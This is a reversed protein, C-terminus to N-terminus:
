EHHKHILKAIAESAEKRCCSFSPFDNLDIIYFDGNPTVIADGGFIEVGISDAAEFAVRKFLKSDFLYRKATGNIIELGFKSNEPTPYYWHFFDEKVGYFKILDGKIHCTCVVDTIGRKRLIKLIKNAESPSTAYCVDQPSNSWGEGKKLWLPYGRSPANEETSLHFYQPQPINNCSMIEMCEKRSCNKVGAPRNTVNIGMEQVQQLKALITNNRSMHFIADYSESDTIDNEDAIKVKNGLIELQQAVALLIARDNDVMRPSDLPNRAIALINM